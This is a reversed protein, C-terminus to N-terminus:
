DTRVPVPCRCRGAATVAPLLEGYLAGSGPIHALAALVIGCRRPLSPRGPGPSAPHSPGALHVPPFPNGRLTLLGRRVPAIRGPGASAVLPPASEAESPLHM